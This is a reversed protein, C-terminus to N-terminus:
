YDSEKAKGLGSFVFTAGTFSPVGQLHCCLDERATEATSAIDTSFVARQYM